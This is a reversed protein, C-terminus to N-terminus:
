AETEKLNIKGELEGGGGLKEKGRLNKKGEGSRQRLSRKGELM